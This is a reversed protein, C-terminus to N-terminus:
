TCVSMVEPKPTSGDIMIWASSRAWARAVIRRSGFVADTASSSTEVSGSVMAQSVYSCSVWSLNPVEVHYRSLESGILSAPRQAPRDIDHCCGAERVVQPVPQAVRHM